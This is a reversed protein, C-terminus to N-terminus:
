SWFFFKETVKPTAELASLVFEPLITNVPVGTKQTYLFLRRAMKLRLCGFRTQFHRYYFGNRQDRRECTREYRHCHLYAERLLISEREIAENVFRRAQEYCDGWFGGQLDAVFHQYQETIPIVRRM